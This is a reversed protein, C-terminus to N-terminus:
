ADIKLKANTVGRSKMASEMAVRMFNEIPSNLSPEGSGKKGVIRVVRIIEIVTVDDQINLIEGFCYKLYSLIKFPKNQGTMSPQNDTNREFTRLYVTLEPRSVRDTFSYNIRYLMNGVRFEIQGGGSENDRMQFSPPKIERDGVENLTKKNLSRRNLEERVLQRILPKLNM